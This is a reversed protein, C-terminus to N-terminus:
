RRRGYVLALGVLGAAALIAWSPPAKNVTLGGGRQSGTNTAGSQASSPGGSGLGSLSGFMSGTVPDTPLVPIM